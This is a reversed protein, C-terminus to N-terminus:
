RQVMRKISRFMEFILVLTLLACGAAIGLLFPYVPMQLTMSVEGSRKLDLAYLASQWAVLAFLILSALAGFADIVAQLREPLKEVLIEVSVHGKELSTYALSFSVVVAGLFGIMEYTGLIPHGFLRLVVDACTLMMMCIVALCAVANFGRSVARAGRGLRTM